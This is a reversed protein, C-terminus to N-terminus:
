SATLSEAARGFKRVVRAFKKVVRGFKGCRARIKGRRPRVKERCARIEERRPSIEGRRPLNWRPGGTNGGSTEFNKRAARVKGRHARIKKPRARIERRPDANKASPQRLSQFHPRGGADALIDAPEPQLFLVFRGAENAQQWPDVCAGGKRGRRFSTALQAYFPTRRYLELAKQGILPAVVQGETMPVAPFAQVPETYAFRKLRPVFEVPLDLREAMCAVDRLITKESLELTQALTTCNLRKKGGRRLLLHIQYMRATAARSYTDKYM